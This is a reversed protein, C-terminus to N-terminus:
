VNGVGILPKIYKIAYYLTACISAIILEQTFITIIILGIFYTHIGIEGQETRILTQMIIVIIILGIYLLTALYDQDLNQEEIDYTELTTINLFQIIKSYGTGDIYAIFTINNRTTSDYDYGNILTAYYRYGNSYPAERMLGNPHSYSYGYLTNFWIETSESSQLVVQIKSTNYSFYKPVYIALPILNNDTEALVIQYPTEESTTRNGDIFALMSNDAYSINLVTRNNDQIWIDAMGTSDTYVQNTLNYYNTGSRTDKQYVKIKAGRLPNSGQDYIKVYFKITPNYLVQLKDYIYTETNYFQYKQLHDDPVTTAAKFTFDQFEGILSSMNKYWNATNNILEEQIRGDSRLYATINQSFTLNIIPEPSWFTLPQNNASLNINRFTYNTTTTYGNLTINQYSEYDTVLYQNDRIPTLNGLTITANITEATITDKITINGDFIYKTTTTSNKDAIGINYTRNYNTININYTGNERLPAKSITNTNNIEWQESTNYIRLNELTFTNGQSNIQAITITTNTGTQQYSQYLELIQAETLM